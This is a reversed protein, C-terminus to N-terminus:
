IDDFFRVVKPKMPSYVLQVDDGEEFEAGGFMKSATKSLFDGFAGSDTPAATPNKARSRTAARRLRKKYVTGDVEYEVQYDYHSPKNSRVRVTSSRDNASSTSPYHAYVALVTGTTKVGNQRLSREIRLSHITGFFLAVGVIPFLLVILDFLGGTSRTMGEIRSAAPDNKALEVQVASGPELSANTGYSTGEHAVGEAEYTYAFSYVPQDNIRTSTPSVTKVVGAVPADAAKFLFADFSESHITSVSLVLGIGMFLVSVFFMYVRSMKKSLNM